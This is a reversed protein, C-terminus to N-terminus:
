QDSRDIVTQNYTGVRGEMAGEDFKKVYGIRDWRAKDHKIKKKVQEYKDRVYM